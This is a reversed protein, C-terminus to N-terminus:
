ARATGGVIDRRFRLLRAVLPVEAASNIAVLRRHGLRRDLMGFARILTNDTALVDDISMTLYQRTAWQMDWDTFIGIKFREEDHDAYVGDVCMHRHMNIIPKGDITIWSRREYGHTTSMGGRYHTTYLHVRGRVGDAFMSETHQKLKSWRV